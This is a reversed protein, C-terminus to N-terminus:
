NTTSTTEEKIMANEARLNQVAQKADIVLKHTAMLDLRLQSTVTGVDTKLASETSITITYTKAAQNEVALKAADIAAQATTGDAESSETIKDLLIQLNNLVQTFRDTHKANVSALKTDIREVLIKKKADRITQLKAKFEERRTAVAERVAERKAAVTEKIQTRLEVRTEKAERKIDSVATKKQAQIEQLQQKLRAASSTSTNTQASVTSVFILLLLPLIFFLLKRTM